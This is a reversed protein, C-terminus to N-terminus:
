KAAERMEALFAAFFERLQLPPVATGDSLTLTAMYNRPSIHWAVPSPAAASMGREGREGKPGPRGRQGASALLKWDGSGPLDGPGDRTAVWSSGGLMVVDGSVYTAAASYPGRFNLANPAGKGRLVDVAGRMEAIKLELETIRKTQAQILGRLEACYESITFGADRAIADLHREIAQDFWAQWATWDHGDDTAVPLPPQVYDDGSREIDSEVPEIRPETRMVGNGMRAVM